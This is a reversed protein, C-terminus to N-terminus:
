GEEEQRLRARGIGAGYKDAAVAFAAAPRPTILGQKQRNKRKVPPLQSWGNVHKLAGTTSQVDEGRGASAKFRAIKTLRCHSVTLKM